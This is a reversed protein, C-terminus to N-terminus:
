GLKTKSLFFFTSPIGPDTFKVSCSSGSGVSIRKEELPVVQGSKENRLVQSM